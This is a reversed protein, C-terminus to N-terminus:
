KYSSPLMAAFVTMSPVYLTFSDPCHTGYPFKNNPFSMASPATDKKKEPRVAGLAAAVTKKKLEDSATVAEFADKIDKDRM